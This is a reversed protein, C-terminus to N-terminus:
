AELLFTEMYDALADEETQYVKFNSFTFLLKVYNATQALCARTVIAYPCIVMNKVVTLCVSEDKKTAYVESVVVEVSVESCVETGPRIYPIITGFSRPNFSAKEGVTLDLYDITGKIRTLGPCTKIGFDLVWDIETKM